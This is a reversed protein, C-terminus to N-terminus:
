EGSRASKTDTNREGAEMGHVNHFAIRIAAVGNAFITLSSDERDRRPRERLGVNTVDLERPVLAANLKHGSPWGALWKGNTALMTCVVIHPIHKWM